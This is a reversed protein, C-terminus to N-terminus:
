LCPTRACRQLAGPQPFLCSLLGPGLPKWQEKRGDGRGPRTSSRKAGAWEGRRGPAGGADPPREGARFLFAGARRVFGESRKRWTRAERVPLCRARAERGPPQARCTQPSSNRTFQCNGHGPGSNKRNRHPSPPPKKQLRNLSTMRGSSPLVTHTKKEGQSEQPDQSSQILSIGRKQQGM